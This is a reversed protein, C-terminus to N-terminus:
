ETTNLVFGVTRIGKIQGGLKFYAFHFGFNNQCVKNERNGKPLVLTIISNVENLGKLKVNRNVKRFDCSLPCAFHFQVNHRDMLDVVDKTYSVFGLPGFVSGQPISCPNIQEAGLIYPLPVTHWTVGSSCEVPTSM